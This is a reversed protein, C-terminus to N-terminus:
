EEHDPCHIWGELNWDEFRTSDWSSYWGPKQRRKTARSSDPGSVWIIPHPVDSGDLRALIVTGDKPASRMPNWPTKM